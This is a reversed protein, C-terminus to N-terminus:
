QLIVEENVQEPEAKVNLEESIEVGNAAITNAIEDSIAKEALEDEDEFGDAQTVDFDELSRVVDVYVSGLDENQFVELRQLRALELLSIFTIVKNDLNAGGDNDLLDQLTTKQGVSLHQKLFVLKEKISLRDRKVVTYKRKERFLFDMMSLTLKDLEMPTLISNVIAKRNVKPKVFIDENQKPLGWLKEGMKQFHQLEELRRILESQSTINLGEGDGIQDKLREQEEETICSKSKLLLLTAALYLYDGAVDFNLERMEAIYGLYQSTIKTLDLDKVSMEEKQVLLLLLGLPGDFNDTKVQITTDLM